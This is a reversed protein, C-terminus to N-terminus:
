TSRRRRAPRRSSGPSRSETGLASGALGDAAAPSARRGRHAARTRTTTLAGDSVTVTLTTQGIQEAVPTLTLTRTGGAGTLVVGSAPLLAANSSHGHRRSNAAPTADDGVTLTLALTKTEEMTADAVGDLTPAQNPAAPPPPSADAHRRVDVPVVHVGPGVRREGHDHDNDAPESRAAAYRSPATREAGGM